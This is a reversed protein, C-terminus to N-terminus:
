CCCCCCCSVEGIVGFGDSVLGHCCVLMVVWGVFGLLLFLFLM